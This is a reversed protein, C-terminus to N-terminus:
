FASCRRTCGPFTLVLSQSEDGGWVHGLIVTISEPNGIFELLYTFKCIWFQCIILDAM